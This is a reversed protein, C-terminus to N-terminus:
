GNPLSRLSFGMYVSADPTIFHLVDGGNVFRRDPRYELFRGNSDLTSGAVVTATVNYGVYVNASANYEFVVQYRNSIAGPVTFTKETNAILNITPTVDSFNTTVDYNSYWQVAIAM